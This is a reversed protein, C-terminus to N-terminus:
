KELINKLNAIEAAQYQVASMLCGIQAELDLIRPDGRKFLPSTSPNDSVPSITTISKDSELDVKKNLIRANMDGLVYFEDKRSEVYLANFDENLKKWNTTSSGGPLYTIYNSYHDNLFTDFDMKKFSQVYDNMANEESEQITVDRVKPHHKFLKTGMVSNYGEQIVSSGSGIISKIAEFCAVGWSTALGSGNIQLKYNATDTSRITNTGILVIGDSNIHIAPSNKIPNGLVVFEGISLQSGHGNNASVNLRYYRYSAPAALTYYQYVPPPGVDFTQNTETGLVLWSSDNTSGEYTWNKAMAISYTSALGYGYCTTTTGCDIKLWGTNQPDATIWRDTDVNNVRNFAKYAMYTGDYESSASVVYPAPANNATMAAGVYAHSATGTLGSESVLINFLSMTGSGYITLLTGSQTITGVALTSPTLNSPLQASTASGILGSILPLQGASASGSVEPFSTTVSSSGAVLVSGTGIKIFDGVNGMSINVDSHTNVSLSGVAANVRADEYYKNTSGETINDTNGSTETGLEITQGLKSVSEKLWNNSITNTGADTMVIKDASVTSTASVPNQVVLSNANLSALGSSQAKSNYFTDLTTHSTSGTGTVNNHSIQTTGDSGTHAHVSMTGEIADIQGQLEGTANNVFSLETPTIDVGNARFTATITGTGLLTPNGLATNTGAGNNSAISAGSVSIVSGGVTVQGFGNFDITSSGNNYLYSIFPLGTLTGPLVYGVTGSGRCSQTGFYIRVEADNATTGSGPQVFLGDTGTGINIHTGNKIDLPTGDPSYGFSTQLSFLFWFVSVIILTIITYFGSKKLLEKEKM